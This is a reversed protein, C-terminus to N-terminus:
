ESYFERKKLSDWTRPAGPQTENATLLESRFFDSLEVNLSKGHCEKEM